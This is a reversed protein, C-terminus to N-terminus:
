RRRNDASLTDIRAAVSLWVQEGEEDGCQAMEVATQRAKGAADSRHKGFYGRAFLDIDEEPVM